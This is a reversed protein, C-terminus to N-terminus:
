EYKYHKDGIRHYSSVIRNDFKDESLQIFVDLIHGTNDDVIVYGQNDGVTLKM